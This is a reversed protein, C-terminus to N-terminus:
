AGQVLAVGRVYNKLAASGVQQIRQCLGPHPSLLSILEISENSGSLDTICIALADPENHASDHIM